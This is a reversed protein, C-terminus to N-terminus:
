KHEQRTTIKTYSMLGYNKQLFFFYTGEPAIKYIYEGVRIEGDKNLLMALNTNPVLTDYGETEYYIADTNNGDKTTTQEKRSSILSVFGTPLSIKKNSNKDGNIIALVEEKNSFSLRQEIPRDISLNDEKTCNTFLFTVLMITIFTRM